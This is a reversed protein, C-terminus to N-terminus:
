FSISLSSSFSLPSLFMQLEKLHLGMCLTGNYFPTLCPSGRDGRRKIKAASRKYLMIFEASCLSRRESGIGSLHPDSKGIM